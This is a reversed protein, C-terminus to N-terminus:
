IMVAKEPFSVLVKTGVNEKSSIQVLGNNLEAFEKVLLLGLGSGGEDRTGLRSPGACIKDISDGIDQKMGKGTDKVIIIQREDELNSSISIQQNDDCYKISNHLLNRMIFLFMDEDCFVRADPDIKVKLNIKKAIIEDKFLDTTEKVAKSLSIELPLVDIRKTQTRAWTFLNEFLTYIQRSSNSIRTIADRKNSEDLDNYYEEMLEINSLLTFFKNKMDHSITSFLKDKTANAQELEKKQNLLTLHTKIRAKVVPPHFPKTIYDVAGLEFGKTADMVESVVTVFIIPINKTNENNKLQECVEYGNIDPMLIDLLILDPPNIDSLALEVGKKGSTAALIKFDDKLFEILININDPMDDIILVTSLANRDRM